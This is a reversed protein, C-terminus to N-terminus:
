EYTKKFDQGVENKHNRLKFVDDGSVDEAEENILMNGPTANSKAVQQQGSADVDRLSEGSGAGDESAYQEIQIEPANSITESRDDEEESDYSEGFIKEDDELDKCDILPLM